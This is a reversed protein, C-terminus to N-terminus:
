PERSPRIETVTSSNPLSDRKLTLHPKPWTLWLCVGAAIMGIPVILGFFTMLLPPDPLIGAFAFVVVLFTVVAGISSIASIIVVGWFWQQRKPQSLNDIRLVARVRLTTWFLVQSVLTVWFGLGPDWQFSWVDVACVFTFALLHAISFRPVSLLSDRIRGVKTSNHDLPQVKMKEITESDLTAAFRRRRSWFSAVTGVLVVLALALILWARRNGILLPFMFIMGVWLVVSLALVLMLSRLSYKM